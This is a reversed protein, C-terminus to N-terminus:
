LASFWCLPSYESLGPYGIWPTATYWRTPTSSRPRRTTMATSTSGGGWRVSSSGGWVGATTRVRGAGSAAGHSWRYRVPAPEGRQFAAFLFPTLHHLYLGRRAMDEAWGEFRDVDVFDVPILKYVTNRM